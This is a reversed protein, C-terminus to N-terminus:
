EEDSIGRPPTRTGFHSTDHPYGPPPAATLSRRNPCEANSCEWFSKGNVTGQPKCRCKPCQDPAAPKLAKM